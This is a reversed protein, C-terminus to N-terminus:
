IWKEVVRPDFSSLMPNKRAAAKAEALSPWRDKRLSTMKAMQFFSPHISAPLMPDIFIVSHMLRPHMFSLWFIPIAGMSHGVGVIPRSFDDRFTNIVQLLDRAHDFLNAPSVDSVRDHEATVPVCVIM